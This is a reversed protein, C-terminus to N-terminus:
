AFGLRINNEETFSFATADPIRRGVRLDFIRWLRESKYILFFVYVGTFLKEHPFFDITSSFLFLFLPIGPLFIRLFQHFHVKLVESISFKFSLLAFPLIFIYYRDFLSRALNQKFSNRWVFKPHHMM